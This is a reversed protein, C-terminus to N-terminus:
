DPRLFERSLEVAQQFAEPQGPVTIFLHTAEPFEIREADVGARLLTEILSEGQDRLIDRGAAILLVPPFNKLRGQEAAHAPSVLYYKEIPGKGPTNEPKFPSGTLYAKNFAEMLDANLGYGTGYKQWSPSGDNYAKTVPYFLLVSKLPPLTEEGSGDSTTNEQWTLAVALALNGGSSDGGVSILYPASGWAEANRFAYRLAEVCANLAAPFPHEPALPYDVALVAVQGTATLADCFRACSNISGITWGGGHFYVLLPLKGQGSRGKPRYLRLGPTPDFAEVQESLPIEGNRAHRVKELEAPHGAIAKEIALRQVTQLNAPMKRLFSDAQAKMSGHKPQNFSLPM